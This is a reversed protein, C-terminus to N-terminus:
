DVFLNGYPDHTVIPASAEPNRFYISLQLEIQRALDALANELAAQKAVRNTFESGLINYSTVAYVPRNLVLTRANLDSLTFSSSVRLQARTTDAAKTLDLDIESISVPRVTLRYAPEAPYGSRYMRKILEGRLIQGERNPIMAISTKDFAELVPSDKGDQAHIKGAKTGYVPEFGCAAVLLLLSFVSLLLAPQRM